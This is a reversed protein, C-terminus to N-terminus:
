ITINKSGAFKQKVEEYEDRPPPNVQVGEEGCDKCIWNTITSGFTSTFAYSDSKYVKNIHECKNKNAM